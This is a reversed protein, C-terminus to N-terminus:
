SNMEDNGIRKRKAKVIKSNSETSFLKKTLYNPIIKDESKRNEFELYNNKLQKNQQRDNISFINLISIPKQQDKNYINKTCSNTYSKNPKDKPAYDNSSSRSRKKSSLNRKM